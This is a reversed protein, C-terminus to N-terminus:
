QVIKHQHPTWAPSCSMAIKCNAIWFYKEGKDILIADGQKFTITENEKHIEGYGEIVYETAICLESNNFIQAEEFAIKKM